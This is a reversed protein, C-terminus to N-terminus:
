VWGLLAGIARAYGLVIACGFATSALKFLGTQIIKDPPTKDAKLSRLAINMAMTFILAVGFWAGLSPDVGFDRAAFWSWLTSATFAKVIASAPATVFMLFLFGTILKM